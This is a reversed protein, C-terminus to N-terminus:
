AMTNDLCALLARYRQSAQAGKLPDPALTCNAMVEDWDLDSLTREAWPFVVGEEESMHDRLLSLYDNGFERLESYDVQEGRSQNWLLRRFSDGSRFLLLHESHLQKVVHRADPDREVLHKFILEETPHHHQDPSEIMYEILEGMARTTDSGREEIGALLYEMTALLTSMIHHDNCLRRTLINM